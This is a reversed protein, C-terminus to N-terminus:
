SSLGWRRMEEELVELYYAVRAQRDDLGGWFRREPNKYIRGVPVEVIRLGLAAAQVWVQLPMGYGPETLRLRALAAARYAKFGCFADTLRLGLRTNLVATIEANVERREAPGEEGRSSGPLYRSGSVIDAEGLLALLDPILYPEHQADCDMTVVADHEHRLAHAFGDILSAGYGDNQAHRIVHVWPTAALIEPSRDTSADDVVLVEATTHRRVERLVAALTAEENYLPMVVIPRLSTWPGREPTM